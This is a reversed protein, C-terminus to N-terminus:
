GHAAVVVNHLLAAVTLPGIGGPVPTFLSAKAACAPDADGRLEGGVESTGADFLAVGDRIDPPTILGPVGAGSIIIDASQLVARQDQTDETIVTVQAGQNRAWVAAPQGVLRGHGVVVVRQGALLVDHRAAIEAIAAVVPPFFGSGTEAYQMGDVDLSAPIASLITDVNLQQPLPLQVIIGDTQMAVRAIIAVMDDTTATEALDIVNVAIGVARAQERKLAVYKQTAFSPAATIVTLHPAHSAHTIENKLAAFQLSALAKGDVIM